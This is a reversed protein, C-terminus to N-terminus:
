RYVANDTSTHEASFRPQSTANLQCSVKSVHARRLVKSAVESPQDLQYAAAM